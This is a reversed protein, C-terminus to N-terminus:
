SNIYDFHEELPEDGTQDQLPGPHIIEAAWLQCNMCAHQEEIEGDTSISIQRDYSYSEGCNPCKLEM